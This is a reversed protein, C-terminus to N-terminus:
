KERTISYGMKIVYRLTFLATSRDFDKEREPLEEYPVLLPTKKLVADKEPGYTWGDRLRGEAWVDHVNQAIEETMQLLDDPLRIDEVDTPSPIYM